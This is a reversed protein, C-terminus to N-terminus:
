QSRYRLLRKKLHDPLLLRSAETGGCWRVYRETYPPEHSVGYHTTGLRECEHPSEAVRATSLSLAEETKLRKVAEREPCGGDPTKQKRQREKSSM